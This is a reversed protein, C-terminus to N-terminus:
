MHEVLSNTAVVLNNNAAVLADRAQRETFGM